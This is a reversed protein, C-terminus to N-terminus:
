ILKKNIKSDLQTNVAQSFTNTCSQKLSCPYDYSM